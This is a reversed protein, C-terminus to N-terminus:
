TKNVCIESVTGAVGGPKAIRVGVVSGNNLSTKLFKGIKWNWSKIGRRFPSYFKMLNPLGKLSDSVRIKSDTWDKLVPKDARV